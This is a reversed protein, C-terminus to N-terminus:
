INDKLSGIASSIFRRKQSKCMNCANCLILEDQIYCFGTKQLNYTTLLLKQMKINSFLLNVPSRINLKRAMGIREFELVANLFTFEDSRLNRCYVEDAFIPMKTSLPLNCLYLDSAFFITYVSRKSIDLYATSVNNQSHRKVGNFVCFTKFFFLGYIRVKLKSCAVSTLM